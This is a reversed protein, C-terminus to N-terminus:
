LICLSGASRIWLYWIPGIFTRTGIQDVVADASIHSTIFCRLTARSTFNSSKAHILDKILRNLKIQQQSWAALNKLVEVSPM